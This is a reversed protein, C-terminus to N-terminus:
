YGGRAIRSVLVCASYACSPALCSSVRLQAARHERHGVSLVITSSAPQRAAVEDRLRCHRAPSSSHGDADREGHILTSTTPSWMERHEAPPFDDSVVPKAPAVYVSYQLEAMQPERSLDISQRGSELRRTWLRSSSTRASAQDGHGRTIVMEGRHAAAGAWAAGRVGCAHQFAVSPVTGLTRRVLDGCACREARRPALHDRQDGHGPRRNAGQGPGHGVAARPRHTGAARCPRGTPSGSLRHVAAVASRGLAPRRGGPAQSLLTTLWMQRLRSLEARAKFPVVGGADPRAVRGDAAEWRKAHGM